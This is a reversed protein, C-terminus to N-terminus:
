QRAGVGFTKNAFPCEKRPTRTEDFERPNTFNRSDRSATWNNLKITTYAPIRYGFMDVDKDFLRSGTPLVPHLRLVENVFDHLKLEQIQEATILQGPRPPGMVERISAALREQVAPLQAMALLVWQAANSTTDVGAGILEIGMIERDADSLKDSETDAMDFFDTVGDDTFRPDRNSNKSAFLQGGLAFMTDFHKFMEEKFMMKDSIRFLGDVSDMFERNHRRAEASVTGNGGLVGMSKGMLISCIAEFGYASTLGRLEGISLPKADTQRLTDALDSAVHAVRSIYSKVLDPRLLMAIPRRYRRWEEENQTFQSLEM